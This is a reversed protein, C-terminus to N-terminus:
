SKHHSITSQKTQKLTEALRNNESLKSWTAKIRMATPGKSDQTFPPLTVVRFKSHGGSIPVFKSTESNDKRTVPLTNLHSRNNRHKKYEKFPVTPLKGANSPDFIDFHKGEVTYSNPNNAHNQSM